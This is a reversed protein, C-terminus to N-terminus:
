VTPVHLGGESFSEPFPIVNARASNQIVIVQRVVTQSHVLLMFVRTDSVHGAAPVRDFANFVDKEEYLYKTEGANLKM